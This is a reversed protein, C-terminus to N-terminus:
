CRLLGLKVVSSHVIYTIVLMKKKSKDFYLDSVKKRRNVREAAAVGTPLESAALDSGPNRPPRPGEGARGAARGPTSVPGEERRRLSSRRDHGQLGRVGTEEPSSTAGSRGRNGLPEGAKAQQRAGLGPRGQQGPGSRRRGHRPGSAGSAAAGRAGPGAWGAPAPSAALGRGIGGAKGEGRGLGCEGNKPLSQIVKVAAEFRTAHVSDTEAMDGDRGRM